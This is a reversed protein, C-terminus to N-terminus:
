DSVPSGPPPESPPSTPKTPDSADAESDSGLLDASMAMLDFSFSEWKVTEGARKKALYAIWKLATPKMDQWAYEFSILGLGTREEMELAEAVTTQKPDLEYYAGDILVKM